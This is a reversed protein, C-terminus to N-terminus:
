HQEQFRAAISRFHGPVPKVMLQDILRPNKLYNALTLEAGDKKSVAAAARAFDKLIHDIIDKISAQWAQHEAAYERELVQNLREKGFAVGNHRLIKCLWAFATLNIYGKANAIYQRKAALRKITRESIEALLYLQYALTPSTKRILSYSDEEFLEKLKAQAAGPGFRQRDYHFASILQTMWPVDPGRDIGISKLQFAKYKWEGRRREYFVRKDRFYRSLEQQFDDNAVLDSRRIPNQQNSRLCINRVIEKKQERDPFSEGQSSPVEIIRVMVRADRSPHDVERISHLTQSGNVVRPNRLLLEQKGPDHTHTDCIITVGNNSYAFEHPADRFTNQIDRNTEEKRGVGRWVRVNRAFLLDFPDNEMYNVFDILKAFVISTPVASEAPPPTLVNSIGSLLLTETEPMADEMYEAVYHLLDDLHLIVVDYNRVSSYQKENKRHDTVFHLDASGEDYLKFLKRFHPRIPERVVDLYAARNDKNRFAEWYRTIEDYFAVPSPRDYNETFKTNLIRYRVAKGVQCNVLLDIKGDGSGDIVSVNTVGPFYMESFWQGFAQPPQQGNKAATRRVQALMFDFLEKQHIVRAGKRHIGAM